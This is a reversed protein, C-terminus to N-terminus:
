RATREYGRDAFQLWGSASFDVRLYLKGHDSVIEHFPKGERLARAYANDGKDLFAPYSFVTVSPAESVLPLPKTAQWAWVQRHGWARDRKKLGSLSEANPTSSRTLAAALENSIAANAAEASRLQANLESIVM